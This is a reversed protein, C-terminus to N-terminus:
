GDGGRWLKIRAWGPSSRIEDIERLREMDNAWLGVFHNHYKDIARLALTYCFMRWINYSPTEFMADLVSDRAVQRCREAEALFEQLRESQAHLEQLRLERQELVREAETLNIEEPQEPQM